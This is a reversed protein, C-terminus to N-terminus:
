HTIEDQVPERGEELLLHEEAGVGQMKTPGRLCHGSGSCGQSCAALCKVETKNGAAVHLRPLQVFSMM